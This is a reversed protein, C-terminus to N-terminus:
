ISRRLHDTISLALNRIGKEGLFEEVENILEKQITRLPAQEGM